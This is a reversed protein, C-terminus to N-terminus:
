TAQEIIPQLENQTSTVVRLCDNSERKRMILTVRAKLRAITDNATLMLEIFSDEGETARAYEQEETAKGEGKTDKIINSWHRNCRELLLSNMSLRDIFYDVKSEEGDLDSEATVKTKLLAEAQEICQELRSKAPGILRPIGGSM